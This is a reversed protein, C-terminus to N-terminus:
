RMSAEPATTELSSRHLSLFVTDLVLKPNMNLELEGQARLLFRLLLRLSEIEKTSAIKVKEHLMTRGV